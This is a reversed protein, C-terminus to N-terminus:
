YGNEEVNIFLSRSIKRIEYSISFSARHSFSFSTYSNGNKKGINHRKIFKWKMSIEIKPNQKKRKQWQKTNTKTTEVDRLNAVLFYHKSSFSAFCISAKTQTYWHSQSSLFVSPNKKACLWVIRNSNDVHYISFFFLSSFSFFCSVFHFYLNEDKGCINFQNEYFILSFFSNM